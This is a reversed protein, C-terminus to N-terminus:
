QTGVRHTSHESSVCPKESPAWTVDVGRQVHVVRLVVHIGAHDHAGALLAQVHVHRQGVRKAKAAVVGAHQEPAEPLSAAAHTGACRVACRCLMSSMGAAARMAAQRGLLQWLVGSQQAYHVQMRSGTSVGASILPADPPFTRGSIMLQSRPVTHAKQTQHLRESRAQQYVSAPFEKARHMGKQLPNSM